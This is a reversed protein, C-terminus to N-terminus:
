LWHSVMVIEYGQEEGIFKHESCGEWFEEKGTYFLDREKRRWVQRDNVLIQKGWIAIGRGNGFLSMKSTFYSTIRNKLNVVSENILYYLDM